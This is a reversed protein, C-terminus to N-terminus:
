VKFVILQNMWMQQCWDDPSMFLFQYISLPSTSPTQCRRSNTSLLCSLKRAKPICSESFSDTYRRHSHRALDQRQNILSYFSSSHHLPSLEAPLKQELLSCQAISQDLALLSTLVTQAKTKILRSTLGSVDLDVFTVDKGESVNPM